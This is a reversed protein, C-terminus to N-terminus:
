TGLPGPKHPYHKHFAPLLEDAHVDDAAVWSFEEDTGEYGSWRVFYRLPCRKFRRDLKSDLIEAIFYEEEGDVEV